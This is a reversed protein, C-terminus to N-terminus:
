KTNTNKNYEQDPSCGSTIASETAAASIPPPTYTVATAGEDGNWAPANAARATLV